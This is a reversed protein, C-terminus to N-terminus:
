LFPEVSSRALTVVHQGALGREEAAAHAAARLHRPLGALDDEGALALTYAQEDALVRQSFRTGLTALREGIEALRGRAAADLGAGARRFTTFYRELVRAQEAGLARAGGSPADKIAAIRAFLPQNMHIADW